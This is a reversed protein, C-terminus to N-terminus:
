GPPRLAARKLNGISLRMAVRWTGDADPTVIWPQPDGAVALQHVLEFGAESQSVSEVPFTWLGAPLGNSADAFRWGPTSASGTTWWLGISRTAALDLRIGLDGLDRRSEDDFFRGRGQRRCARSTSNL